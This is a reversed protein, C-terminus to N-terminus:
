LGSPGEQVGLVTKEVATCAGEGGIKMRERRWLDSKGVLLWNLCDWLQSDSDSCFVPCSAGGLPGADSTRMRQRAKSYFPGYDVLESAM